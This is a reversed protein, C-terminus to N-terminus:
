NNFQILFQLNEQGTRLFVENSEGSWRYANGNSLDRAYYILENSLEISKHNIRIMVSRSNSSDKNDINLLYQDTSLKKTKIVINKDETTCELDESIKTDNAKDVLPQHQDFTLEKNILDTGFNSFGASIM